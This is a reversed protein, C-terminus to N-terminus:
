PMEVAKQALEVAKQELHTLEQHIQTFNPCFSAWPDSTNIETNKQRAVVVDTSYRSYTRM